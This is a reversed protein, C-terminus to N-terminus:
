RIEWTVETNEWFISMRGDAREDSTIEFKFRENFEASKKPAVKFRLVDKSEDYKYSGWQDAVSNIIITWETEGPISFLAYKGARLMGGGVKCDRSVEITSAENAGTRWVKGFPVLEGFVKRGKVGPSSYNVVVKLNGITAEATKPPSPRDDKKAATMSTKETKTQASVVNSVFASFLFASLILKFNPIIM